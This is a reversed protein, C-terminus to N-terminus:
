MAVTRRAQPQVTFDDETVGKLLRPRHRLVLWAAPLAMAGCVLLPHALRLPSMSARSGFRQAAACVHFLEIRREIYRRHYEDREARLVSSFPKKNLTSAFDGAHAEVLDLLVQRDRMDGLLDQARKLTRVDRDDPWMRLRVAIEILYRLKKAQIRVQHLRNPFYVGTARHIAVALASGHGAIHVRLKETTSRPTWFARVGSGQVLRDFEGLLATIEPSELRKLLRRRSPWRSLDLSHRLTLAVAALPPIREEYRSLLAVSVDHDRVRGLAKGITRLGAVWRDVQDGRFVSLLPCAARMRRVAVRADHVADANGERIGPLAASFQRTQEVFARHLTSM